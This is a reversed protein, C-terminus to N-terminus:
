KRLRKGNEQGDLGHAHLAVLARVVVHECQTRHAATISHSSIPVGEGRGEHTVHRCADAVLYAHKQAQANTHTHTPPPPPQFTKISTNFRNHFPRIPNMTSPTIILPSSTETSYLGHEASYHLSITAQTQLNQHTPFTHKHTRCHPKFRIAFWTAQM